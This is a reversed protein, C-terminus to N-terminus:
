ESIYINASYMARYICDLIHAPIQLSECHIFLFASVHTHRYQDIMTPRCTPSLFLSSTPSSSRRTAFLSNDSTQPCKSGKIESIFFNFYYNLAEFLSSLSVFKQRNTIQRRTPSHTQSILYNPFQFANFIPSRKWLWYSTM